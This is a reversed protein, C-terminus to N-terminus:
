TELNNSKNLGFDNDVLPMRFVTRGIAKRNEEGIKENRFIDKLRMLLHIPFRLETFIGMPIFHDFHDSGPHKGVM